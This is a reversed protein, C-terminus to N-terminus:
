FDWQKVCLGKSCLKLMQLKLTFPLGSWYAQVCALVPSLICGNFLIFVGLLYLYVFKAIIFFIVVGNKKKLIKSKSVVTNM